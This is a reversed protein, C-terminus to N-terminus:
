YCRVAMEVREVMKVAMEFVMLIVDGGGGVLSGGKGVVNLEELSLVGGGSWWRM